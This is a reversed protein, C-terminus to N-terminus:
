KWTQYGHDQLAMSQDEKPTTGYLRGALAYSLDGFGEGMAHIMPQRLYDWQKYHLLSVERPPDIMVPSLISTYNRENSSELYL